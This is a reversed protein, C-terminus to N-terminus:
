SAHAAAEALLGRLRGTLVVLAGIGDHPAIQRELASVSDLLAEHRDLFDNAAAIPDEPKTALVQETIQRQLDLLDWRLDVLVMRDWIGGAEAERLRRHAAHIGTGEGIRTYVRAADAPAVPARECLRLVNLGRDVLPLMAVDAALAGPLGQQTLAEQRESAQGAEVDSLFSALHERLEALGARRREMGSAELVAGGSKV